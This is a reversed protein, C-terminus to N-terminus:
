LCICYIKLQEHLIDENELFPYQSFATNMNHRENINQYM